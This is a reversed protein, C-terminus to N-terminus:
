YTNPKGMIWMENVEDATLARKLIGLEDIWGEFDREKKQANAGINVPYDDQNIFGTAKMEHDLVGDVYLRMKEGDYTGVLLHWKGDNVNKKGILVGNRPSLGSCCFEM